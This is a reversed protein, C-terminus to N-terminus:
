HHSTGHFGYRRLGRERWAKPVAYTHVYGPISQHFATDFVAVQPLTPWLAGAERIGLLALPNHLPALASCDEIRQMVQEDIRAANHFWTGGHVVRHGIAAFNQQDFEQLIAPVRAIAARLDAANEARTFEDGREGGGRYRLTCGGDKFNAFEGKFVRSDALEMDFVGFKLSSSGLNFVLVKM